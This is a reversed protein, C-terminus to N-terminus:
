KEGINQKTKAIKQKLKKQSNKKNRGCNKEKESFGEFANARCITPYDVLRYMYHGDHIDKNSKHSWIHYKSLSEREGKGVQYTTLITREYKYQENTFSNHVYCISQKLIITITKKIYDHYHSYKIKFLQLKLYIYHAMDKNTSLIYSLM